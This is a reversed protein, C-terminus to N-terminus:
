GINIVNKLLWDVGKKEARTLREGNEGLRWTSNELNVFVARAESM